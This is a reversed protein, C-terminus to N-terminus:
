GVTGVEGQQGRRNRLQKRLRQWQPDALEPDQAILEQAARRAEDLLEADRVLDAIRFRPVGSQRTGLLDGPGRNKWDMEALEFGDQTNALATLRVNDEPSAERSAYVCVYGPYRGRQVRGRLQHLQALGLRDADLITMLTANPVDIGVEIVTTAVLVQIEGGAFRELVSQKEESSLRGHLLEVRLGALEQRVLQEFVQSAGLADEDGSADIRPVVVYGQRGQEIQRRFFSWWKPQQEPEGLYTHVRGRGEPRQRILSVDLDGFLTMSLTRPIPTATLVLYHPQRDGGLLGARQFVGFRHQEDVVVLGLQHFQVEPSLLAQTGVVIDVTGLAIRQMLEQREGTPMSGVLLEVQTRSGALSASLRGAHQRALLETPAMLAAQQGSAVSLLMAYEAVLTKGTGVDGQLLRNMPVTRQMDSAVAACADLQDDTPTHGLRNLIRQHILASHSVAPAPRHHQLQWRQMALVLQYVLLEQFALRRRAREVDEESRPRHIARIAESIGVVDYRSRFAEPLAEQLDGALLDVAREIIEELQKNSLGETLPYIPILGPAPPAEGPALLEVEPHVMQWSIGTSKVVGTALLRGGRKLQEQRFPQNFWTLRMHGGGDLAILCGLVHRGGDLSRGEIEQIEGCVHALVREQLQDARQLTSVQRYARPFHFLLDVPRIIGLKNLLEARRPGVRPM